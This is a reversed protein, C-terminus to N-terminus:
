AYRIQKLPRAIYPLFIPYADGLKYASIHCTYDSEASGFRAPGRMRTIYLSSYIYEVQAICKEHLVVLNEPEGSEIAGFLHKRCQWTKSSKVFLNGNEQNICVM